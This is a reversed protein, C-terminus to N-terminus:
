RRSIDLVLNTNEFLENGKRYNFLVETLNALTESEKLDDNMTNILDIFVMISINTLESYSANLGTEMHIVEKLRRLDYFNDSKLSLHKDIPKDLKMNQEITEKFLTM